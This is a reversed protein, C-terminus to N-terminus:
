SIITLHGSWSNGQVFHIVDILGGVRDIDGAMVVGGSGKGAPKNPDVRELIVLDAPSPILRYRGARVALRRLAARGPVSLQGNEDILITFSDEAVCGGITVYIASPALK